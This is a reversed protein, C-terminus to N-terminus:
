QRRSDMLLQGIEEKPRVLNYLKNTNDSVLHLQWQMCAYVIDYMDGLQLLVNWRVGRYTRTVGRTVTKRIVMMLM